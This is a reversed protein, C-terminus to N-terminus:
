RGTHRAEIGSLMLNMRKTASLRRSGLAPSLRSGALASLRRSGLAPSLRSGALASVRRSGLASLWGLPRTSSWSPWGLPWVSVCQYHSRASTKRIDQSGIPPQVLCANAQTNCDVDSAGDGVQHIWVTGHCWMIGISHCISKENQHQCTYDLYAKKVMHCIPYKLVLANKECLEKLAHITVCGGLLSRSPLNPNDQQKQNPM